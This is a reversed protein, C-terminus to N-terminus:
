CVALVGVGVLLAPKLSPRFFGDGGGSECARPDDPGEPGLLTCAGLGGAGITGVGRFLRVSGSGKVQIGIDINWGHAASWPREGQHRCAQFM